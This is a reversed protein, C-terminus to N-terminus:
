VKEAKLREIEEEAERPTLGQGYKAETLFRYRSLLGAEVLKVGEAISTQRDQTVGDDFVTQVEYGSAALSEVSQGQWSLGYLIAVDIINRALHELAPALQNQVTRITKFTKSNESVVETATRLGGRSDFSFTGVSFGLQLCLISLFANLAAVHEEVRLEVSNDQIRLEGADDTALAEYVRDGPDFYRRMEGTSPDAVTRVCRAPVIIRKKGLEFEQVFSDYCIDLARLTELANAYISVGLPSDDDLNNAIPTHWYTFLSDGVRAETHADLEPYAEELPYRMGLIDQGTAGRRGESRYVENDVCYIDGNRRHWELRTFYKGDKAERSIFVAEKVRANDWATPVFQDAMCYGIRVRGVEGAKGKMPLHGTMAPHPTGFAKGGPSPPGFPRILDGNGKGGAKGKLPLHGTMASHPTGFAKGGPSPPGFPRILDGNGTGGAKGKLPLHRPEAAVSSTTEGEGEGTPSVGNDVASEVPEVWVKMAAGGLALGQEVLQQMKENFANERLVQHVFDNLPDGEGAAGGKMSVRIDCQEGWVLGALEASVAKAANLRYLQRMAKPNAITPAPVMHWPAYSGRYLAKWVFIGEDYFQRYAPVGGVEFIDRFERALGTEAGAKQMLSRGRKRLREFVKM